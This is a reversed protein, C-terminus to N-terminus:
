YIRLFEKIASVWEPQYQILYNEHGALPFTVLKKPGALNNFINDTEQITVKPDKEGYMLLVPCKIDKAYDEPNHKFANFSVQVGGWFVLLEAM